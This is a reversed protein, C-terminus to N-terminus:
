HMILLSQSLAQNPTKLIISYLGEPYLQLNIKTKNEFPLIALQYVESGLSNIMSISIVNLSANWELFSIGSSPNPFLTLSFTSNHQVENALLHDCGELSFTPYFATDNESMCDLKLEYDSVNVGDNKFLGESCGIGEIWTIPYSLEVQKRMIGATEINDVSTVELNKLTPLNDLAGETYVNYLIDGVEVDFDYLLFEDTSDKPIYFVKKLEVRTSGKYAGGCYYIKSYTLSNIITDATSMCYAAASTLVTSVSPSNQDHTIEYTGNFWVANSDPFTYVTQAFACYGVWLFLFTFIYRM